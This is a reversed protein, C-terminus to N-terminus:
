QLYQYQVNQFDGSSELLPYTGVSSSFESVANGFFTVRPIVVMVEPSEKTPM